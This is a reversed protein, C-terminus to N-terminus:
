PVEVWLNWCWSVETPARASFMFLPMTQWHKGHTKWVLILSFWHDHMTSKSARLELEDYSTKKLKETSLNQAGSHSWPLKSSRESSCSYSPESAIDLGPIAPIVMPWLHSLHPSTYGHISVPYSGTLIRPIIRCTPGPHCGECGKMLISCTCPSSLDSPYPFTRPRLCDWHDCRPTHALFHLISESLHYGSQRTLQIHLMYWWHRSLGDSSASSGVQPRCTQLACRRKGRHRWASQSCQFWECHAPWTLSVQCWGYNSLNRNPYPKALCLTHM